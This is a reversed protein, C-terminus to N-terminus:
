RRKRIPNFYYTFRNFTGKKTMWLAILALFGGIFFSYIVADNKKMWTYYFPLGFSFYILICSTQLTLFNVFFWETITKDKRYNFILAMLMAAKNVIWYYNKWFEASHDNSFDNFIM